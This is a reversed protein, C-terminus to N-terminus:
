RLVYTVGKTRGRKVLLGHDVLRRLKSRATRDNCALMAAVRASDVEGRSATLRLISELDPALGAPWRWRSSVQTFHGKLRFEAPPLSAKALAAQAVQIGTGWGEILGMEELVRGIVPNRLVSVGTGLDRLELGPPLSGANTFEIVDDFIAMRVPGTGTGYDRHCLANILFERFAEEPYVHSEQRGRPTRVARRPIHARFFTLGENYLSVLPGSGTRKDLFETADTGRFRAMDLGSQPFVARPEEAFLLVAGNTPVVADGLRTAFRMKILWRQDVRPPVPISRVNLRSQLYTQIHVRSLQDLTLGVCPEADFTANKSRLRMAEIASASAQRTSSGIRVFTGLEVGKSAVFYPQQYGREVSVVVLLRDEMTVTRLIPVIPPRVLEAVWSGVRDEYERAERPSVGVVTGSDGVGVILEGGATNAFAVITSLLSQRDPFAAKFEVTSGEGEQILERM